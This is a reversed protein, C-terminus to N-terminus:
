AKPESGPLQGVRRIGVLVREAGIKIQETHTDGNAPDGVLLDESLTEGKIYSSFREVAQAAEGNAQYVTAITDEIKLGASKRADQVGRVFDRALGELRLEPTIELDLAVMFDRDEAVAFGERSRVEVLLEDPEIEITEDEVTLPITRGARQQQALRAPDAQQI